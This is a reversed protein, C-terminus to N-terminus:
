LESALWGECLPSGRTKTVTVTEFIEFVLTSPVRHIVGSTSRQGGHVHAYVGTSWVHVCVGTSWVHAYVGTSWVHPCVYMRFLSLSITGILHFNCNKATYSHLLCGDGKSHGIPKFGTMAGTEERLPSESELNLASCPPRRPSGKFDIQLCAIEKRKTERTRHEKRERKKGKQNFFCSSRSHLEAIAYKGLM